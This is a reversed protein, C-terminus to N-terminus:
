ALRRIAGKFWLESRLSNCRVIHLYRAIYVSMFLRM